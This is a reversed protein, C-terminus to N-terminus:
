DQNLLYTEAHARIDALTLLRHDKLLDRDIGNADPIMIIKAWNQLEAQQAVFYLFLCLGQTTGDFPTALPETATKFFKQGIASSMDLPQDNAEAPTTAFTFTPATPAAAAATGAQVAPQQAM